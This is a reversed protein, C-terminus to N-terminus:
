EFVFCDVVSQVAELYRDYSEEQATYTLVYIASNYDCLVQMWHYSKGAVTATFTYKYADQEGLKIETADDILSFDPFTQAYQERFTDFYEAANRCSPSTGIVTINLNSANADGMNFSTMGTTTDILWDNPAYVIYSENEAEYAVFGNPISQGNENKPQERCSAMVTLFLSVTIFFLILRFSSSHNNM